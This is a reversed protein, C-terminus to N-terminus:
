IYRFFLDRLNRKAEQYDAVLVYKWEIMSSSPLFFRITHTDDLCTIYMGDEVGVPPNGEDARCILTPKITNRTTILLQDLRADEAAKNNVPQLDEIAYRHRKKFFDTDDKRYCFVGGRKHDVLDVILVARDAFSEFMRGQLGFRDQTETIRYFLVEDGEKFTHKM